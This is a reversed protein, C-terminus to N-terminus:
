TCVLNVFIREVRTSSIVGHRPCPVHDFILDNKSSFESVRFFIVQFFLEKIFLHAGPLLVVCVLLNLTLNIATPNKVTRSKVQNGGYFYMYSSYPSHM